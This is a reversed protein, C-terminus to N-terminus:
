ETKTFQGWDDMESLEHAYSDDDSLDTFPNNSTNKQKEKAKSEDMLMIAM